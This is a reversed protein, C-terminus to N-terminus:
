QSFTDRGLHPIESRTDLVDQRFDLVLVLSDPPLDAVVIEAGGEKRHDSGSLAPQRDLGDGLGDNRRSDVVELACWLRRDLPDIEQSEPQLLPIGTLFDEISVAVPSDKLPQRLRSPRMNASQRCHASLRASNLRKRCRLKQVGSRLVTS